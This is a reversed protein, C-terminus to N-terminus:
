RAKVLIGKPRVKANLKELFISKMFSPNLDNMTKFIELALDRLRKIEM